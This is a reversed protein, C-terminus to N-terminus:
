VRTRNLHKLGVNIWPIYLARFTTVSLLEVYLQTLLFLFSSIPEGGGTNGMPKIELCIKEGLPNVSVHVETILCKAYLLNGIEWLKLCFSGSPAEWQGPQPWTDKGSGIVIPLSNFNEGSSSNTGMYPSLSPGWPSLPPLAIKELPLRASQVYLSM